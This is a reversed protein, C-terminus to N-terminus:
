ILVRLGKKRSGGEQQRGPTSDPSGVSAGQQGEYQGVGYLSVRRYGRILKLGDNNIYGGVSGGVRHFADNGPRSRGVCIM